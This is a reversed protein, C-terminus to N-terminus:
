KRRFARRHQSRPSHQPRPYARCQRRLRRAEDLKESTSRSSPRKHAARWRPLSVADSLPGTERRVPYLAAQYRPLKPYKLDCTRIRSGRGLSGIPLLRELAAALSSILRPRRHGCIYETGSWAGGLRRWVEPISPNEAELPLSGPLDIREHAPGARRVRPRLHRKTEWGLFFRDGVGRAIAQGIPEHLRFGFGRRASDRRIRIIELGSPDALPCV